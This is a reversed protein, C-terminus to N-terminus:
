GRTEFHLIFSVGIHDSQASLKSITDIQLIDNKTIVNSVAYDLERDSKRRTKKGSNLMYGDLLNGQSSDINFDGAIWWNPVGHQRNIDRIMCNSMIAIHSAAGPGWSPAHISAFTRITKGNLVIAQQLRLGIIPRKIEYNSGDNKPCNTHSWHSRIPDPRAPNRGSDIFEKNILVMLQSQFPYSEDTNRWSFHHFYYNGGRSGTGLHIEGIHSVGDNYNRVEKRSWKLKGDNLLNFLGTEQLLAVDVPLGDSPGTMYAALSSFANDSTGRMNWTMIKFFRKCDHQEQQRSIDFHPVVSKVSDIKYIIVVICCFLYQKMHM